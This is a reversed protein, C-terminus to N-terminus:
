AGPTNSEPVAPELEPDVVTWRWARWAKVLRADVPNRATLRVYDLWDESARCEHDLCTERQWFAGERGLVRNAMRGTYSEFLGLDSTLLANRGKTNQLVLHLHSPMICGAWIRWGRERLWDFSDFLGQAVAPTSLDRPGTAAANLTADIRQFAPLWAAPEAAGPAPAAAEGRALALDARASAPVSGTRCLTVFYPREAAQQPTLPM